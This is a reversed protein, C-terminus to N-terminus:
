TWKLCRSKEYCKKSKRVKCNNQKVYPVKMKVKSYINFRLHTTKIEKHKNTM